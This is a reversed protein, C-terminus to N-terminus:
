DSELGRTHERIEDIHEVLAQLAALAPREEPVPRDEGPLRERVCVVMYPLRPRLDVRATAREARGEGFEELVTHEAAPVQGRDPYPALVAGTRTM